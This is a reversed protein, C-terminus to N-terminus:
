MGVRQVKRAYSVWVDLEEKGLGVGEQDDSDADDSLREMVRKLVRSFLITKNKSARVQEKPTGINFVVGAKLDMESQVARGIVDLAFNSLANMSAHATKQVGGLDVGGYGVSSSGTSSPVGGSLPLSDMLYRKWPQRKGATLLVYTTVQEIRTILEALGLVEGVGEAIPVREGFVKQVATEGGGLTSPACIGDWACVELAGFHRLFEVGERSKAIARDQAFVSVLACVARAYASYGYRDYGSVDIDGFEDESADMSLSSSVKVPLSYPYATPPPVIPELVGMSPHASIGSMLSALMSDLEEVTPLFRM